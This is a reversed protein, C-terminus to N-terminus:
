SGAISPLERVTRAGASALTRPQNPQYSVILPVDRRSRDDYGYEVLKTVNFLRRDLRGSTVLPLADAPIVTIDGHEDQRQRYGVKERGPAPQFVAGRSGGLTVRDGT